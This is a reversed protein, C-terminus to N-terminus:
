FMFHMTLHRVTSYYLALMDKINNNSALPEILSSVNDHVIFKMMGFVSVM